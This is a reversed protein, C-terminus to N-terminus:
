PDLLAVRHVGPGLLPALDQRGRIWGIWQGDIVLGSWRPLEVLAPRSGDGFWWSWRGSGPLEQWEWTRWRELTAHASRRLLDGVAAPAPHEVALGALCALLLPDSDRTVVAADGSVARTTRSLRDSWVRAWGRHLESRLLTALETRTAADLLDIPQGWRSWPMGDAELTSRILPPLPLAAASMAEALARRGEADAPLHPLWHEAGLLRDLALALSAHHRIPTPNKLRARLALWDALAAHRAVWDEGAGALDPGADHLRTALEEAGLVDSALSFFWPPQRRDVALVALIIARTREPPLADRGHTAVLALASQHLDIWTPAWRLAQELATAMARHDATLAALQARENWASADGPALRAAAQLAAEASSVDGALRALWAQIVAHRVSSPPTTRAHEVVTAGSLSLGAARRAVAVREVDRALNESVHWDWVKWAGLALLVCVGLTLAQFRGRGCSVAAADRGALALVCLLLVGTMAVAPSHWVFDGCSHLALIGLGSAAGIVLTRRGSDVLAPAQPRLCVGASGLAVIGALMGLWGYELWWELPDNHLHNVLVETFHHDGARRYAVTTTGGGSGLVGADTIVPWASQWMLVRGNLTLGEAGRLRDFREAVDSVGILWLWAAIGLAGGTAWWWRRRHPLLQVAIPLMVLTAVLIGGRSGSLLIALALVAVAGWRVQGGRRHAILTALPLCAAWFAAAHNPYIFPGRARQTNSESPWPAGTLALVLGFVATIVAVAVLADALARVRGGRALLCVVLALATLTALWVLAELSAAPDLSWATPTVALAAADAALWPHSWGLPLVQLAAVVLLPAFLAAIWALPPAHLERRLGLALGLGAIAIAFAVLPRVQDGAGGYAGLAAILALTLWIRAANTM